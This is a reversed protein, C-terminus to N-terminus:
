RSQEIGTVRGDGAYGHRGITALWFIRKSTVRGLETGGAPVSVRGDPRSANRHGWRFVIRADNPNTVRLQRPRATKAVVIPEVEKIHVTLTAPVLHTDDCVFYEFTTDKTALPMTMVEVTDDDGPFAMVNPFPGDLDPQPFRCVHLDRGSPSSDNALVDVSRTQGPYLSVTDDVAVPLPTDDKASAPAVLVVALTAAAACAAVLRTVLM